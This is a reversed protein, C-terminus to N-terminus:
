WLLITTSDLISLEPDDLVWYLQTSKPTGLLSLGWLTEPGARITWEVREIILDREIVGGGPPHRRFRFVDGIDLDLLVGWFSPNAPGSLSIAQVRSEPNKYQYLLGQAQSEYASTSINQSQILLGRTFFNQQSPLDEATFKGAPGEVTIRNYLNIDTYRFSVQVYPFGEDARDSFTVRPARRNPDSSYVGRGLFTLKGDQAIFIRGGETYVALDVLHSAPNLRNQALAAVTELTGQFDRWAAPWGVLDCIRNMRALTGEQPFNVNELVSLAFLKLGDVCRLTAISDKWGPWSLTIDEIYGRYLIFEQSGWQARIRIPTFLAPAGQFFSGFYAPDWERQFNSCTLTAEGPEFRDLEASRGRRIYVERVTFTVDVWSTPEALRPGGPAIEIKLDPYLHRGAIVM